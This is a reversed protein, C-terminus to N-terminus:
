YPCPFCCVCVCVCVPHWTACRTCWMGNGCPVACCLSTCNLTAFVRFHLKTCCPAACCLATRQEGQCGHVAQGSRWAVLRCGGSADSSGVCRVQPPFLPCIHHSIPPLFPFPPPPPFTHSSLSSILHSSILHSSILVWFCSGVNQLRVSGIANHFLMIKSNSCNPALSDRIEMYPLTAHRCRYLSCGDTM